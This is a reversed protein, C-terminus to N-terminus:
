LFLEPLTLVGGGAAGRVERCERVIPQTASPDPQTGLMASSTSKNRSHGKRFPTKVGGGAGVSPLEGVPSTPSSLVLTKLAQVEAQLVDIQLFFCFDESYAPLCDPRTHLPSHEGQGSSREATKWCKGTQCKSREGNQSGGPFCVSPSDAALCAWHLQFIMFLSLFVSCSCLPLRCKCVCVLVCLGLVEQLLFGLIFSLLSSSSNSCCTKLARRVSENLVSVDSSALEPGWM